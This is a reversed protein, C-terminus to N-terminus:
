LKVTFRLFFRLYAVYEVSIALAVIKLKMPVGKFDIILVSYAFVSRMPLAPGASSVCLFPAYDM